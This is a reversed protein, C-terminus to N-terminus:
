GSVDRVHTAIFWRNGFRDTVGGSRDGYPQDAPAQISVAGARLAQSYVADVDPVYLHLTCPMLTYPGQAGALAVVSDGLRVQAHPISGDPMQARYIEEGGFAQKLFEILDEPEAAYLHPTVSRFDKFIEVGGGTPKSIHLRNGALDVVTGGRSGYDKDSIPELPTAGAEVARNYVADPDSVRVLLTVPMAPYQPNADAVEVMSDGIRVEAHMVIDTGPRPVRLREEAGFVKKVFDIWKGAGSVVLYPTISHFGERVPNVTRAAETAATEATQRTTAAFRRQMEEPSVAEKRTSIAWTYGFPDSVQGSRDGYFQDAVPRVVKAGAAVARRAFADVDAVDLHIHIPSGGLSEPSRFGIEPFEDALMIRAGGINIEAHGVRGDPQVFRSDPAETAGFAKKYFEIAAAAGKISLYPTATNRFESVGKASSAM